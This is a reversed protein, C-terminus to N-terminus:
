NTQNAALPDLRRQPSTFVNALRGGGGGGSWDPFDILPAKHGQSITKAEM